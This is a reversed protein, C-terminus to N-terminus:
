AKVIFRGSMEEHESGCFNDCLFEYTGPKDFKLALKTIRGPPLDARVKIDPISLGHVFDLSSIELMIAEGAKLTIESPTYHFREAKLKVVRVPADQGRAAFAWLAGVSAVGWALGLIRRRSPLDNASSL